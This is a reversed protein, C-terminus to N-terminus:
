FGRDRLEHDQLLKPVPIGALVGLRQITGEFRGALTWAPSAIPVFADWSPQAYQQQRKPEYFLPLTTELRFNLIDAQARLDILEQSIAEDSSLFPLTSAHLEAILRTDIRRLFDVKRASAVLHIGLAAERASALELILLRLRRLMEDRRIFMEGVESAMLTRVGSGNRRYFTGEYAHPGIGTEIEVVPLVRDPRGPVSLPPNRLRHPIAPDANKLLQAIENTLDRRADIGVVRQQASVDRSDSVGIVLFGGVGNAMAVAGKIFRDRAEQRVDQKWDLRADEYVNTELLDIIGQITWNELKDPIGKMMAGDDRPLSASRM